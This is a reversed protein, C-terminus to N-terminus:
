LSNCRVCSCTASCNFCTAALGRVCCGGSLGGFRRRGHQRFLAKDHHELVEGFHAAFGIKGGSLGLHIFAGREGVHLIGIPRLEFLRVAGLRVPLLLVLAIQEIVLVEGLLGAHLGFPDGQM